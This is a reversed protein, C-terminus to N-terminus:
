LALRVADACESQVSSPHSFFPASGTFLKCFEGRAEVAEKYEIRMQATEARGRNHTSPGAPSALPKMFMPLTKGAWHATVPELEAPPITRQLEALHALETPGFHLLIPANMSIPIYWHPSRFLSSVPFLPTARSSMPVAEGLLLRRRGLALPLTRHTRAATRHLLAIYRYNRKLSILQM